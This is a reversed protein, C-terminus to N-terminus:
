NVQLMHGIQYHDYGRKPIRHEGKNLSLHIDTNLVNWHRYYSDQLENLLRKFCKYAEVHVGRCDTYHLLFESIVLSFNFILFYRIATSSQQSFISCAIIGTQNMRCHGTSRYVPMTNNNLLSHTYHFWVIDNHLLTLNPKVCTKKKQGPIHFARNNITDANKPRITSLNTSVSLSM